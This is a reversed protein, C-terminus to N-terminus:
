KRCCKKNAAVKKIQLLMKKNAAVNIKKNTYPATNLICNVKKIYHGTHAVTACVKFDVGMSHLCIIRCASYQLASRVVHFNVRCSMLLVGFSSVSERGFNKRM